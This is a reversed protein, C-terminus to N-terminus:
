VHLEGNAIMTLQGSYKMVGRRGLTLQRPSLFGRTKYFEALSSLFDADYSNFGVGNEHVTNRYNQEDDTQLSHIALIGRRVAKDSKQLLTKIEDSKWTKTM